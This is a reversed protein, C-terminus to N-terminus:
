RPVGAISVVTVDFQLRLASRSMEVDVLRSRVEFDGRSGTATAVNDAPVLIPPLVGAIDFKGLVPVPIEVRDFILRCAQRDERRVVDLALRPEVSVDLGLQRSRLRLSTLVHGKGNSGANPDFGTVRIESIEVEISGVGPVPVRIQDPTLAVLLESITPADLTLDATASAPTAAALLLLLAPLGTRKLRNNRM